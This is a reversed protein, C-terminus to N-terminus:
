QKFYKEILLNAGKDNIYMRKGGMHIAGLSAKYHEILITKADFAVFGNYGKEISQQCAFAVLNGPVGLYVKEKGKNFKASEVLHLFIHDEKDEISVLGQIIKDNKTTSLKYVLKTTDNIEKRWDFQWQSKVILKLTATTLKNIDTDFVEGTEVNEISNTLKDIIFDSLRGKNFVGLIVFFNPINFIIEGLTKM